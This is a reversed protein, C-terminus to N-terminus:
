QYNAGKYAEIPFKLPPFDVGQAMQERFKTPNKAALCKYILELIKKDTLYSLKYKDMGEDDCKFVNTM